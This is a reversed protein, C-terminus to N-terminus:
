YLIPGRLKLKEETHVSKGSITAGPIDIEYIQNLMNATFEDYEHALFKICTEVNEKQKNLVPAKKIELANAYLKPHFFAYDALPRVRDWPEHGLDFKAGDPGIVLYELHAKIKKNKTIRCIRDIREIDEFNFSIESTTFYKNKVFKNGSQWEYWYLDFTFFVAFLAIFFATLARIKGNPRKFIKSLTAEVESDQIDLDIEKRYYLHLIDECFDEPDRQGPILQGWGQEYVLFRRFLPNRKAVVMCIVTAIMLGAPIALVGAFLFDTRAFVYDANEPIRELVKHRLFQFLVWYAGVSIGASAICVFTNHGIIKYYHPYETKLVDHWIKQAVTEIRSYEEDSLNKGYGPTKLKNYGLRVWSLVIYTIGVFVIILMPKLFIILSEM